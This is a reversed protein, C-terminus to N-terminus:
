AADGKAASPDEALGRWPSIQDMSRSGAYRMADEPVHFVGTYMGWFKGNWHAYVVDDHILKQYVGPLAPKVTGPLWETLRASV